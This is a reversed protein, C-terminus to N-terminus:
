RVDARADAGVDAAPAGRDPPPGADSCVVAACACGERGTFVCGRPPTAPCDCDARGAGCGGALAGVAMLGAALRLLSM